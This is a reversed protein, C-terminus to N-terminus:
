QLRLAIAANATEAGHSSERVSFSGYEGSGVDVLLCLEKCGNQARYLSCFEETLARTTCSRTTV